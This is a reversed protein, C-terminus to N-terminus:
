AHWSLIRMWLRVYSSLTALFLPLSVSLPYTYTSLSLSLFLPSCPSCYVFKRTRRFCVDTGFETSFDSTTDIAITEAYGINQRGSCNIIQIGACYVDASYRECHPLPPAHSVGPNGFFICRARRHSTEFKINLRRREGEVFRM